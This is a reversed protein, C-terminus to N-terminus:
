TRVNRGVLIPDDSTVYILPCREGLEGPTAIEVGMGSLDPVVLLGPPLRPDVFRRLLSPPNYAPDIQRAAFLAASSSLVNLRVWSAIPSADQDALSLYWASERASWYLEFLYEIGELPTIQQYHLLGTATDIQLIM